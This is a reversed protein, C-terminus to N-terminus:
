SRRFAPMFILFLLAYCLASSMIITPWGICHSCVPENCTQFDANCQDFLYREAEDGPIGDATLRAYLDTSCNCEKESPTCPLCTTFQDAITLVIFLTVPVIALQIQRHM